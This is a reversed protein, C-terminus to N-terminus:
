VPVAIVFRGCANSVEIGRFGDAEYATLYDRGGGVFWLGHIGLDFRAANPRDSPLAKSFAVQGTPECGDVMGDFKSKVLVHLNEANKRVFSKVTNMTIKTM